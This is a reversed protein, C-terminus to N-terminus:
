SDPSVSVFAIQKEIVTFGMRLVTTSQKFVHIEELEKWRPDKRGDRKIKCTAWVMGNRLESLRFRNLIM